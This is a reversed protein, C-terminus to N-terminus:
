LLGRSRWGRALTGETVALPIMQFFHQAGQHGVPVHESVKCIVVINDGLFVIASAITHHMSCASLPSSIMSHRASDRDM